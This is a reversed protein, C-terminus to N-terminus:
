AGIAVEDVAELAGAVEAADGVVVTAGGPLAFLTRAAEEVEAKTVRALAAPHSTLYGPGVGASAISSLTATLGAQTATLFTLTGISYRRASELEEDEIGAVAMKALEYRVEVLSAATTDRGVDARVVLTSGARAHGVSSRPSYSYGHRERLNVVLRSTFLGGFILNALSAAPWAEDSRRPASFGILLNSQVSGPRDVLQVPAPSVGPLPPLEVSSAAGAGDTWPGLRDEVLSAVKAPQVDGVVVLHGTSPTLVQASLTRLAGASVRRVTTPAPLGTAAPHGAHMRRRLAEFAIVEPQSLAILTEDAIRDRDSRVEAPRFAAASLIEAVLDLLQPLNEALVAGGLVFRDGDHSAGFSGGLREIAAALEERSHAETGALLTEALVMSAAPRSIVAAPLPFSLRLEVM